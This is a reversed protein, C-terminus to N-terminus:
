SVKEKFRNSSLSWVNKTTSFNDQISLIYKMSVDTFKLRFYTVINRYYNGLKRFTTNNIKHSHKTM